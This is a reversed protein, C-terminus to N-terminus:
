RSICQKKVMSGVGTMKNKSVNGQFSGEKRLKKQKLIAHKLKCTFLKRLDQSFKTFTRCILVM